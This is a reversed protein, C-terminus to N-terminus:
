NISRLIVFDCFPFYWEIILTSLNIHVFPETGGIFFLQMGHERCVSISLGM